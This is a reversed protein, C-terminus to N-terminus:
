MNITAKAYVILGHLLVTLFSVLVTEVFAGQVVISSRSVSQPHSNKYTAKSLRIYLLLSINVNELAGFDLTRKSEGEFRSTERSYPIELTFMRFNQNMRRM